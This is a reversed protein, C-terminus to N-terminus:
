PHLLSSPYQIVSEPTLRAKLSRLLCSSALSALL